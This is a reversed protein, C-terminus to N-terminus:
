AVVVSARRAPHFEGGPRVPKEAPLAARRGSAGHLDPQGQHRLAPGHRLRLPGNFDVTANVKAELAAKVSTANEATVKAAEISKSALEYEVSAALVSQGQCVFERAALLRDIVRRCGERETTMKIAIEDNRDLPIEKVSVASLRYNVLEVVDRKLEANVLRAADTDIAIATKQLERAIMEESPSTKLFPIVDKQEAECITVYFKGDRTVRYISGPAILNSPPKVPYYGLEWLTRDLATQTDGTRSYVYATPVAVIALVLGTRVAWRNRLIFDLIRARSM